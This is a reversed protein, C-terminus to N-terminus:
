APMLREFIQECTQGQASLQMVVQLLGQLVARAITRGRQGCPAVGKAFAFRETEAGSAPARPVLSQAVGSLRCHRKVAAEKRGQAAELGTVQKGCEHFIEAAWRLRWTDLGRGSEGHQADTLWFRPTDELADRAHVIGLRTRGYRKLRVVTTCAGYPQTEGHRGRGQVACLSGPPEQRLREAVSAVRPWQGEWQIHRASALESVWPQGAGELCRRWALTWVGHDFASHAPPFHGEQALQPVSERALEPRQKDALRHILPHLLAV